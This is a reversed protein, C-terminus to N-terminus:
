SRVTTTGTMKGLTGLSESFDAKTFAGVIHWSGRCIIWLVATWIALVIPLAAFGYLGIRLFHEPRVKARRLTQPLTKYALPVLLMTLVVHLLAMPVWVREGTVQEEFYPWIANRLSLRVQAPDIRTGYTPFFISQRKAYRWANFLGEGFVVAGVTLHVVVM